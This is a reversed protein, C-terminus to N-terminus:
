AGASFPPHSPGNGGPPFCFNLKSVSALRSARSVNYQSDSSPNPIASLISVDSVPGILLHLEDIQDVPPSFTSRPVLSHTRAALLPPLPTIILPWHDRARQVESQEWPGECLM